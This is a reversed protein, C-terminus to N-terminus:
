KSVSNLIHDEIVGNSVLDMSSIKFDRTFQKKSRFVKLTDFQSSGLHFNKFQKFPYKKRTLKKM